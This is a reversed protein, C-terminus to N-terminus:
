RLRPCTPGARRSVLETLLGDRYLFSRSGTPQNVTGNYLEGLVDGRENIAYAASNGWGASPVIDTVSGDPHWIRAVEKDGGGSRTGAVQGATNSDFARGGPLQTYVDGSLVFPGTFGWGVVRGANDLSVPVRYTETPWVLERPTGGSNVVYRTSTDNMGYGILVDGHDNFGWVDGFRSDPILGLDRVGDAATYVFPHSRRSPEALSDGAVDGRQNLHLSSLRQLQGLPPIEPVQYQPQAAAAAALVLVGSLTILRAGIRNM